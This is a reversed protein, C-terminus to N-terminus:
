SDLCARPVKGCAAAIAEDGLPPPRRRAQRIADAAALFDDAHLVFREIGHEDQLAVPLGDVIAGCQAGGEGEIVLTVRPGYGATRIHIPFRM